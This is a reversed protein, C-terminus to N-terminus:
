ALQEETPAQVPAGLPLAAANEAFKLVLKRMMFLPTEPKLVQGYEEMAFVILDDRTATGVDFVPAEKLSNLVKTPLKKTEGAVWRLRDEASLGEPGSYVRYDKHNRLMEVNPMLRGDNINVVHPHQRDQRRKLRRQEANSLTQAQQDSLM